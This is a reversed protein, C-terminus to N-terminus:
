RRSRVVPRKAASTQSAPDRTDPYDLVFVRMSFVIACIEPFVGIFMRVCHTLIVKCLM